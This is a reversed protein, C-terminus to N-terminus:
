TYGLNFEPSILLSNKLLEFICRMPAGTMSSDEVKMLSLMLFLFFTMGINGLLTQSYM